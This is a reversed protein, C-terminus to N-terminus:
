TQRKSIEAVVAEVGWFERVTVDDWDGEYLADAYAQVARAFLAPCIQAM